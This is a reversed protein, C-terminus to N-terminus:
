FTEGKLHDLVATSMSGKNKITNYITKDITGKAVIVYYICKHKQKSIDGYIRDVSQKWLEYSYNLSFYISFHANTLTLGKDASAPNAVLYQLKGQKFDQINKNKEEFPIKGYVLGCKGPYRKNILEFEKHYNAWIIAQNDGINHLIKDLAKFKYDSLLYTQEEETDIIFGSTVQNLKNFKAGTSLATILALEGGEKEVELYLKRRLEDYQKRLKDPMTVEYVIFDMGPTTLVDEKDVYLSYRRLLGLLEDRKEPKIQLKEFQPNYSINNFFYNKFQTWSKHVGYYDISQLQRYYEWEGNPAPTGSLLYWRNIKQSYDVAAKAFKSKHSKMTSSEDVFCGKISLQEIHKKYNVFSEINTIYVDADRKFKKLRRAKTKDHLNVVKLDPFFTKADELWANEILILPCLVLWKHTPNKEIDDAIIQLSMPTKGTRTDYFFAFRDNYQAIERGLQQHTWLWGNHQQPGNNILFQTTTRRNFEKTYLDVIKKPANASKLEQLNNINRFLKLVLDINRITTKFKTKTRNSHVYPIKSALHRSEIDNKNCVIEIYRHNFLLKAILKDGKVM